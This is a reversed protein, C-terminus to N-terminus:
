LKIEIDNCSCNNGGSGAACRRGGIIADMEAPVLEEIPLIENFYLQNKM